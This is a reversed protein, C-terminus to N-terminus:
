EETLNKEKKAEEWESETAETLGEVELPASSKLYIHEGYGFFAPAQWGESQRGFVPELEKFHVVPLQLIREFIRAGAEKGRNPYSEFFGKRRRNTVYARSSPKKTFYLQGIGGVLFVGNPTFRAAGLERALDSAAKWAKDGRGIIDMLIKGAETAVPLRYYCHTTTKEM